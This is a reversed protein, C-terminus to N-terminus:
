EATGGAHVIEGLIGYMYSQELSQLAIICLAITAAINLTSPRSAPTKPLPNAPIYAPERQGPALSETNQTM